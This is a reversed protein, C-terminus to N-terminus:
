EKNGFVCNQYLRDMITTNISQYLLMVLLSVCILLSALIPVTFSIFEVVTIIVCCVAVIAFAVWNVIINGSIKRKLNISYNMRMVGQGNKEIDANVDAFAKFELILVVTYGIAGALSIGSYLFVTLETLKSVGCYIIFATALVALVAYLYVFIKILKLKSTLFHQQEKKLTVETILM